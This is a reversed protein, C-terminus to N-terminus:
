PMSWYGPGVPENYDGGAVLFGDTDVELPLQPLARTAPGSTPLAGTLVDFTSQHCPCLLLHQEKQYLGLPCAAHTCIKSYAVLGNPTWAQRDAPLKLLNPRVHILLTQARADGAYGEPYVTLVGDIRLDEAGIPTGDARILKSGKEWATKALIPNPNPGFSRLMSLATASVGGAFALFSVTLLRRRTVSTQGHHVEAVVAAREEDTSELVGRDETAMEDPMGRRAWWILGLGTSVLALAVLGGFLQTGGGAWFAIVAGITALTGVILFAEPGIVPGSKPGPDSSEAV